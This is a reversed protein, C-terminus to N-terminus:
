TKDALYFDIIEKAQALLIERVSAPEVVRIATGFSLLYCYPWYDNPLDVM